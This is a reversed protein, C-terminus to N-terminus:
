GRTHRGADDLIVGNRGEGSTSEDPPPQLSQVAAAAAARLEHDPDNEFKRLHPVARAAAPGFRVLARIAELRTGRSRAELAATLAVIAEDALSAGPAIKGLAAAISSGENFSADVPQCERLGDILAPIAPAAGRSFQGLADAAFDRRTPHGRRLFETLAAIVEDARDTGPALQGLAWAAARGPDPSQGQVPGWGISDSLTKILAPISIRADPGLKLLLDIATCQLERDHGDLAETLTPLVAATIASPEVRSL